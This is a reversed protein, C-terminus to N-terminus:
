LVGSTTSCRRATRSASRSCGPSSTSSMPEPGPKRAQSIASSTPGPPETRPMSGLSAMSDTALLLRCAAPDAGTSNPGPWAVASGKPSPSNSTTVDVWTYSYTASM